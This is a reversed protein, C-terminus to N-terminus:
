GRERSRVSASEHTKLVIIVTVLIIILKLLASLSSLEIFGVFLARILFYRQFISHIKCTIYVYTADTRTSLSRMDRICPMRGACKGCIYCITQFTNICPNSYSRLRRFVYTYMFQFEAKRFKVVAVSHSLSMFFM